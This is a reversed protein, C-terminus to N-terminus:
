EYWSEIEEIIQKDLTAIFFGVGRVDHVAAYDPFADVFLRPGLQKNMTDHALITTPRLRKLEIIEAAVNKASHDGDVFICDWQGQMFTPLFDVSKGVYVQFNISTIERVANSIFIDCVAPRFDKREKLVQAAVSTSVGEYCGIELYTRIQPMLLINYLVQLQYNRLCMGQRDRRCISPVTFKKM